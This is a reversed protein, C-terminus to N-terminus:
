LHLRQYTSRLMTVRKVYNRTESLSLGELFEDLPKGRNQQRWKKIRYPGGNYGAVALEVNGDLLTILKRLYHTGLEINVEPNELRSATFLGHIRTGLEKGTAPMLQMLGTAGVHSKARPNFSSEQRILAMVLYPDLDQKAAHKRIAEEYKVPYYLRIFHSPVRDQEVTALEPWAIRLARVADDFANEQYRIEGTIASSYKRNAFNSNRELEIKADRRAGLANLEYALRLEGPMEKEAIESWQPGTAKLPNSGPASKKAGRRQAYLSYLDEYPAAALRTYIAAAASKDGARDLTRALWYDSQRKVNPNLYTDRIFTFLPRATALDGRVYAGWAKDWFKQLGAETAPELTALQRILTREYEDQNRSEAIGILTNLAEIKIADAAPIQLLDKLREIWLKQYSERRYLLALNTVQVNRKVPAVRPPPAAARRGKKAPPTQRKATAPKAKAKPKAAAPKAKAKTAPKKRDAVLWIEGPEEMAANWSRYSSRQYISGVNSHIQPSAGDATRSFSQAKKKRPAPKRAAPKKAPAKKLAPKKTVSKKAVPKAPPKKAGPKGPAPKRVTTKKAVVKKGPPSKKAPVVVPKPAVVVKTEIPNISGALAQYNKAQFYIAPIAWRYPGRLKPELVRNSEEFRRLQHLALGRNFVAEEQHTPALTSPDILALEGLASASEKTEVLVRSRLLHDLSSLPLPDNQSRGGMGRLVAAATAVHSSGPNSVVLTHAAEVLAVADGQYFASEIWARQAAAQAAPDGRGTEALVESAARWSAVENYLSALTVGVENRPALTPNRSWLTALTRRARASQGTARQSSGLHYLRYQEVARPGFSFSGLHVVAREHDKKNVAEVGAAFQDRFKALDPPAEIPVAPQTSASEVRATRRSFFFALFAALVVLLAIGGALFRRKKQSPRASEGEGMYPTRQLNWAKARM